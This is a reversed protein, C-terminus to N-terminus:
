DYEMDRRWVFRILGSLSHEESKGVGVDVLALTKFSTSNGASPKRNASFLSSELSFTLKKGELNSHRLVLHIAIQAWKGFIAEPVDSLKM